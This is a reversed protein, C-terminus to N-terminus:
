VLKSKNIAPLSWDMLEDDVDEDKRENVGEGGVLVLEVNFIGGFLGGIVIVV